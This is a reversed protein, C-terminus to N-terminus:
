SFQVEQQWLCFPAFEFVGYVIDTLLFTGSISPPLRQRKPGTLWQLWPRPSLTVQCESVQHPFIHGFLVNTSTDPVCVVTPNKMQYRKGKSVDNTFTTTDIYWTDSVSHEKYRNQLVPTLLLLLYDFKCKFWSFTVTMLVKHSESVFNGWSKVIFSLSPDKNQTEDCTCAWRGCM